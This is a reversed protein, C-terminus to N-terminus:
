LDPLRKKKKKTCIKRNQMFGTLEYFIQWQHVCKMILLTFVFKISKLYDKINKFFMKHKESIVMWYSQEYKM